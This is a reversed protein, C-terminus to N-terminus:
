TPASPNDNTRVVDALTLTDAAQNQAEGLRQVIHWAPLPATTTARQTLGLKQGLSLLANVPIHDASRALMHPQDLGAAPENVRRLFGADRLHAILHAAVRRSLGTQQAIHEATAVQGADLRQAYIAMVPVLWRPDLLVQGPDDRRQAARTSPGQQLTFTLELGLLMILWTVYLWLLFLPILGLSGYLASYGVANQVYLGFAWKGIEWLVAAFLAGIMAPRLKVRTNPLLVYLLGFLIWTSLLAAFYSLANLTSQLLNVFTNSVEGAWGGNGGLMAPLADIWSTVQSTLWISLMLLVPGLTIAAWYIAVRMPWSRGVECDFVRNFCQEATVVLSLAAWILLVIGVIGISTFSVESVQQNLQALIQDVAQAKVKEEQPAPQTTPQTNAPDGDIPQQAAVSFDLGLYDYMQEQLQGGWTELGGFARFILLALVVFPVLGFITRYTLAAAMQEANDSQMKWWCQRILNIAYRLARQARTLEHAPETLLRRAQTLTAHYWHRLRKV